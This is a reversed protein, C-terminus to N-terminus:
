VTGKRILESIKLEKPAHYTRKQPKEVPTTNDKFSSLGVKTHTDEKLMFIEQLLTLINFM